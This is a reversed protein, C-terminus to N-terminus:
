LCRALKNEKAQSGSAPRRKDCACLLAIFIIVFIVNKFCHLPRKAAKSWSQRSKKDCRVFFAIFIIVFKEQRRKDGGM